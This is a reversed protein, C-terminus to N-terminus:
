FKNQNYEEQNFDRMSPSKQELVQSIETKSNGGSQFTKSNSSASALQPEGFLLRLGLITSAALNRKRGRPEM